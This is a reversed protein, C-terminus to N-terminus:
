IENAKEKKRQSITKAVRKLGVCRRDRSKREPSMSSPKSSAAKLNSRSSANFQSYTSISTIKRRAGVVVEKEEANPELAERKEARKPPNAGEKTLSYFIPQLFRESVSM